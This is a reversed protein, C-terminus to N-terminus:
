GLNSTVRKVEELTTLGALVKKLGYERLTSRSKEDGHKKLDGPALKNGALKAKIEKDLYLVDFIGIRGRYGTESCKRCGNAQMIAETNIGKREFNAIHKPSLVVPSKCNDCLRRVLRQSVIVSVASALLLPKAGLEMLRVLAAMNSSSHLTALVLHGTQSAQLAMAATQSDRIEGVCIVDPDQRLVSRLANVFTIDAKVNVEIQSANPLVYEIPDEVTVVNRAYFDINSLMAYLSTTKGSGTPGCIVIMGSSQKIANVVINCTEKSLGIEDLKLLGTSQNLVRISLKEGGLVGASAVRFFVNGEPIKAMFAGDQPRRKESIDMDSIAKISNIVAACKDAEIQSVTRLFGDIRFRVTFVANSKPDILIDSAREYISDLIISETLDLIESSSDKDKDQSGYVESFSRGSSDQLEIPSEEGIKREGAGEGWKFASGFIEKLIDKFEIEGEQMKRTRDAVFLVFLLFPGIFLSFVNAMAKHRRPVLPSFEIRRVSYMCLYVWGVLFALKIPGFLLSTIPLTETQVLALLAKDVLISLGVGNGAYYM